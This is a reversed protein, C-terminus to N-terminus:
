FDVSASVKLTRPEGITAFGDNFVGAWYSRNEVNELSTRLTVDKGLVRTAYRAGLDYRTWQPIKLRNADDLYQSSTHIALGTLTLGDVWPTDWEMGLNATWDPVGHATHGDYKGDATRTLVARTFTAGGLLRLSPTLSGFVNWEVGRNRQEGSDSYRNSGTDLMLSPQEIQFLSLTHAFDGADWKAGVELQKTKYPAFQEGYNAASTDGVTGGQALGEIYNAYLSINAEWPKVVIGVAPTLASEDYSPKSLKQRVRQSRVGLTLKVKDDLMALTDTVAFSSLTNDGTRSTSGTSGAVLPDSPQYINSAYSPGTVTAARGIDQQLLSASLTIDHNVSGTDFNGRVGAEGATSRTYGAQNYTEGTADGAANRVRLRTGNLFGKYRTKGHGVNAYASWRDSLEYEGRLMVAQTVQKSHIGRLINTDNKPTKLVRGLTAFGVMMPSGNDTHEHSEYADLDLKWGEGQYDMGLAALNRTKSEDEVGAKGDGYVGNFRVGFQQQGGFRRGLDLHEAVYGDSEYSTTLRTLPEPAARKPVLNIMGGVNGGPSMGSLLASPGKLVEVRELFETPVHGDPAMGYLGNVALETSNLPYGRVMFNEYAHGEGTSFRVSPDSRLLAGLTGSQQNEIHRATYATINFPADMIATDGLVGLRAATAVQGGSYAESPQGSLQAGIQTADLTLADGDPNGRLIIVGNEESAIIGSNGLVSALAQLLSYSGHLAPAQRGQLIQGDAAIPIGWARTLSQVAAALPQAALELDLTRASNLAGEAMAPLPMWPSGALACALVLRHLRTGQHSRPRDAYRSFLM